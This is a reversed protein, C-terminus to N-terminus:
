SRGPLPLSRAAGRALGPDARDGRGALARPRARQLGAPPRAPRVGRQHDPRVREPDAGLLRFVERALGYWTTEGRATGHYVGAPATGALAARGLAVLQDALDRADLHAPRAPRRGRRPHGREGALRIMTRVFNRATRATSGPPACSTAPRPCCDSCRGSAPWSPAATPTSAARDPADEAYPATRTAPSSTTPPSTSLRAGTAACAQPSARRVADGNVACRRPGRRDRRRRRRDLRRLQGRRRATGAVAADCRRRTPSTSTPGPRAGTATSAADARWGPRGPGRGLMGGAGTVLWRM